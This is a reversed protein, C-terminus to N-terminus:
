ILTVISLKVINGVNGKKEIGNGYNNNNVIFIRERLIEEFSEEPVKFSEGWIEGSM